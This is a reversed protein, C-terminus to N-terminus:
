GNVIIFFKRLAIVTTGWALPLWIPMYYILSIDIVPSMNVFSVATIFLPVLIGLLFWYLDGKERLFVFYFLSVGSTFYNLIRVQPTLYTILFIWCFYLVYFVVIPITEKKM